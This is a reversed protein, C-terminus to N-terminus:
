LLESEDARLVWQTFQEGRERQVLYSNALREVYDALETEAVKLGRIKRGFTADSGGLHGGLHVQYGAIQEGAANTMLTGKFGIDVVQFRACANPCGNVTITMPSDFNPLRRELEDILDSARVKTEVIALKCFEIGTCAMVQRRFVSPRVQLDLAELGAVLSDVQDAEVDLVILKQEVTSHVHGSGHAEALDAVQQLKTGTMRGVRLAAGVFFKGDKQPHIGVHDRRGGAPEAPAPGDPLPYGLYEKELVERFKAAGWDAVLFKLRARNRLRRYGYDRFISTVGVWVAEVQDPRVFVGVRQAFMPNTSLGGGVWLDYGPEGDPGVVGVFAVDNIEH